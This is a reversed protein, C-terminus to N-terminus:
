RATYYEDDDEAPNRKANPGKNIKFRKQGNEFDTHRVTNVLHRIKHPATVGMNIFEQVIELGYEYVVRRLETPMADVRAMRKAARQATAARFHPDNEAAEKDKRRDWERKVAEPMSEFYERRVEKDPSDPMPGNRKLWRDLQDRM